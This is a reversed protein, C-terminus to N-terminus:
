LINSNSLRAECPDLQSISEIEEHTFGSSRGLLTDDASLQRTDHFCTMSCIQSVLNAVRDWEIFRSEHSTPRDYHLFCVLFVRIQGSGCPCYFFLFVRCFLVGFSWASVFSHKSFAIISATVGPLGQQYAAAKM